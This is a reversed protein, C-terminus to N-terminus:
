WRGKSWHPKKHKGGTNKPRTQTGHKQQIYTPYESEEYDDLDIAKGVARCATTLTVKDNLKIDHNIAWAKIMESCLDSTNEVDYYPIELLEKQLEPSIHLRQNLISHKAHMGASIVALSTKGAALAMSSPKIAIPRNRENVRSAHTGFNSVNWTAPHDLRELMMRTNMPKTLDEPKVLGLAERIHVQSTEKDAYVLTGDDHEFYQCDIRAKEETTLHYNAVRRLEPFKEMDHHYGELAVFYDLPSYTEGFRLVGVMVSIIKDDYEKSLYVIIRSPSGFSEQIYSISVDELDHKKLMDRLYDSNFFSNLDPFCAGEDLLGIASMHLFRLTEEEPQRPGEVDYNRAATVTSDHIACINLQKSQESQCIENWDEMLRGPTASEGELQIWGVHAYTHGWVETPFSEVDIDVFVKFASGEVPLLWIGNINGYKSIREVLFKSTFADSLCSVGVKAPNPSDDQVTYVTYRSKAYKQLAIDYHVFSPNTFFDEVSSGDKRYAFAMVYHEGGSYHGSIIAGAVTLTQHSVRIRCNDWSLGVLGCDPAHMEKIFGIDLFEEVTSVEYEEIVLEESFTCFTPFYRRIIISM